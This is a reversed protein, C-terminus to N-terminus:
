FKMTQDINELRRKLDPYDRLAGDNTHTNNDGTDTLGTAKILFSKLPHASYGARNLLKVGDTDAELEIPVATKSFAGLIIPLHGQERTERAYSMDNLTLLWIYEEYMFKLFHQGSKGLLKAMTKVSHGLDSHSVEHALVARIEDATMQRILETTVFIRCGTSFANIYDSNMPVVELCSRMLRDQTHPLLDLLLSNLYSKLKPDVPHKLSTVVDQAISAAGAYESLHDGLLKKNTESFLQFWIALIMKEYSVKIATPVNVIQGYLTPTKAGWYDKASLIADSFIPQWYDVTNRTLNVTLPGWNRAYWSYVSLLKPHVYREFKSMLHDRTEPWDAQAAQAQSPMVVVGVSNIFFLHVGLALSFALVSKKM